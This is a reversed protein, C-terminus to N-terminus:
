RDDAAASEPAPVLVLPCTAHQVCYQAVSGVLAGTLTGRRHNGLVLLDAGRAAELLADAAGGVVARPDVVEAAAAPLVSVADSLWRDAEATVDEDDAMGYSMEPLTGAVMGPTMAGGALGSGPAILPRPEVVAIAVVRGGARQAQEVAWRLAARAAASGDVGVVLAPQGAVGTM